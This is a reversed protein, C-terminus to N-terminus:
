YGDKKVQNNTPYLRDGAQAYSGQWPHHQGQVLLKKTRLPESQVQNEM